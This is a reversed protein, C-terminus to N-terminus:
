YYDISLHSLNRGLKLHVQVAASDFGVSRYLGGEEALDMAKLYSAYEEGDITLGADRPVRLDFRSDDGSIELEVRPSQSGVKLYIEGDDNDIKLYELRNNQFTLSVDADEGRTKMKIPVNEPLSMTWDRGYRHGDIVIVGERGFRRKIELRGVGNIEEFKIEPKRSFRDFRASILDTTTRNMFIDAGGHEVTVDLLTMTADTPQEWRYTSFYGKDEGESGTEVAVAVMAVILILPSLYAIFSWKSRQFVKELGIAILILPWWIILEGWYSWDLAGLNNLLLMVGIALLLLGWRLRSPTM